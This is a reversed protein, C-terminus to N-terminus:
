FQQINHIISNTNQLNQQMVIEQMELANSKKTFVLIGNAYFSSGGIMGKEACIIELNYTPTQQYVREISVIKVPQGDSGLLNGGLLANNAKEKANNIYIPHNPTVRLDNNIILYYDTMDKPSHHYVKTVIGDTIINNNRDYSLVKDGVVIDEINKYSGDAMTIHTGALFCSQPHSTPISVELTGWESEIGNVNRTKAKVIFVGQEWWTHRQTFAVGSEYPGCWGYHSNGWEFFYSLNSGDPSTSNFTYTYETGVERSTPGDITPTSPTNNFIIFPDSIDGTCLGRIVIYYNDGPEIISNIHWTYSESATETISLSRIFDLSDSGTDQFLEITISDWVDGDYIWNIECDTGAFFHDDNPSLLTINGSLEPITINVVHPESLGSWSGHIDKAEARVLFKGPANWAHVSTVTEGSTYPGEWDSSTGDGWYWKVYLQDGDPDTIYTSVMHNELMEAESGSPQDPPDPRTNEDRVDIWDLKLFEYSARNDSNAMGNLDPMPEGLLLELILGSVGTTVINSSLVIGFVYTHGEQVELELYEEGEVFSGSSEDVFYGQWNPEPLNWFDFGDIKDFYIQKQRYYFENKEVGYLLVEVNAKQGYGNIELLQAFSGEISLRIKHSTDVVTVIPVEYEYGLFGLGTSTEPIFLFNTDQVHNLIRNSGPIFTIDHIEPEGIWWPWDWHEYSDDSNYFIRNLLGTTFSNTNSWSGWTEGDNFRIRWYYTEFDDLIEAIYSYEIDNCREGDEVSCWDWGGDYMEAGNDWNNDDGIELEYKTANDGDSDHYIASFEPHDDDIDGPSTEGECLLNTPASPATNSIEITKGSSWGSTDGEEDRAQAKVVYTGSSNWSHSKSGTSGSSVLSTWDSYDNSGSADWDFRYQVMDSDPDTASTSYTGSVGKPLTSPGSPTSPTNPPNNPVIDIQHITGWTALWLYDGDWALDTQTGDPAPFDLEENGSLTLKYITDDYNKAHWLYNGDYALGTLISAHGPGLFSDVNVGSTTMKYIKNKYTSGDSVLGTYWLYNGDFTLGSLQVGLVDFNNIENGSTTYKYIKENTLIWLDPEEYALGTIDEDGFDPDFSSFVTGSTTLEYVRDILDGNDNIGGCWLHDGDYTLGNGYFDAPTDFYSVVDGIDASVNNNWRVSGFLNVIILIFFIGITKILKEM